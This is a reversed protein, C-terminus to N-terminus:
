ETPVSVPQWDGEFISRYIDNLPVELKSIDFENGGVHYPGYRYSAALLPYSFQDNRELYGRCFVLYGIGVQLNSKWDWAEDYPLDSVDEWAGKTVQMMGRAVSSEARADLSSEAMAIAYVFQPDLDSQPAVEQIYAWVEEAPIRQPRKKLVQSFFIALIGVTLILIAAVRRIVREDKLYKPTPM